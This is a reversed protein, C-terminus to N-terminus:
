INYQLPKRMSLKELRRATWYCSSFGPRPLHTSPGLLRAHGPLHSSFRKQEQRRLNAWNSIWLNKHHQSTWSRVPDVPRRAGGFRATEVEENLQKANKRNLRFGNQLPSFILLIEWSIEAYHPATLNECRMGVSKLCPRYDRTKLGSQLRNFEPM